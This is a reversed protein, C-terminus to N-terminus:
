ERQGGRSAGIATEKSPHKLAIRLRRQKQKALWCFVARLREQLQSERM